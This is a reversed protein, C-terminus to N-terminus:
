WSSTWGASRWHRSTCPSTIARRTVGDGVAADWQNEEDFGGSCADRGMQFPPRLILSISVPKLGSDQGMRSPPVNSHFMELPNRRNSFKSRAAM